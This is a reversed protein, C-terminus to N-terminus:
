RPSQWKASRRLICRSESKVSSLLWPMQVQKRQWASLDTRCWVIETWNAGTVSGCVWAAQQEIV